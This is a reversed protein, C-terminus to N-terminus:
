LSSPQAELMGMREASAGLQFRSTAGLTNMLRRVRREVTSESVGLARAIGKDTLGAMLLSLVRREDDALITETPESRTVQGDRLTLLSATAWHLEFLEILSSLLDSERVLLGGEVQQSSGSVLIVAARDDAIFLRLPLTGGLKAESGDEDAHELMWRIREPEEDLVSRDYLTRSRTNAVSVGPPMGYAPLRPPKSFVRSERELTQLMTYWVEKIAGVGEITEVVHTPHTAMSAARLRDTLQMAAHKAAELESARKRIPEELARSPPTPHAADGTMTVFGQAELRQLASHVQGQSGSVQKCLAALDIGPAEILARYVREEMETLGLIEFVRRHYTM